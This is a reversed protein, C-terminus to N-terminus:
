SFSGIVLQKERMEAIMARFRRLVLVTCVLSVTNACLLTLYFHSYSIYSAVNGFAITGVAVAFIACGWNFGFNQVGFYESLLAPAVCWLGGFACGVMACALILITANDSFLLMLLQAVSFLFVFLVLWAMRSVRMILLDSVLGSAFRTVTGCCPM